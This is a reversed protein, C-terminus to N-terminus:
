SVDNVAVNDFIENGNSSDVAIKSNGKKGKLLSM